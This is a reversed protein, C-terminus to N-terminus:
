LNFDHRAYIARMAQERRVVANHEYRDLKILEPLARRIAEATREPEKSPLPPLAESPPLIFTPEDWPLSCQSVQSDGSSQFAGDRAFALIQNITAVKVRRVQALDFEAQATARAQELIVQHTTDGAIERALEEVRRAQEANSPLSAALGHRYSNGSARRRGAPSRPGSSKAANRRNAQRQQENTM